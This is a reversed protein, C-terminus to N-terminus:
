LDWECDKIGCEKRGFKNEERLTSRMEQSCSFGLVQGQNSQFFTHTRHRLSFHESMDKYFGSQLNRQYLGELYVVSNGILLQSM